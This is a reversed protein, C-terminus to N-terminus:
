SLRMERFISVSIAPLPLPSYHILKVSEKERERSQKAMM